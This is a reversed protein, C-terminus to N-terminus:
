KHKEKNFCEIKGETGEHVPEFKAKLRRFLAKETREKGQIPDYGYNIFLQEGRRIDRTAVFIIENTQHVPNYTINSRKGSHNFLSGLGLALARDDRRWEFLYVDIPTGDLKIHYPIPIVPSREVVEGRRIKRTAYLGRGYKNSAVELKSMM